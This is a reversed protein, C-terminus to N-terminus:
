PSERSPEGESATEQRLPELFPGFGDPGLAERVLKTAANVTITAGAIADIRYRPDDGTGLVPAGGCRRLGAQRALRGALGPGPDQRWYGADRGTRSLQDRRSTRLDPELALYGGSRRGCARARSGAPDAAAAARRGPRSFGTPRCADDTMSTRTVQSRARRAPPGTCGTGARQAAHGAAARVRGACQSLPGRRGLVAPGAEPAPSDGHRGALLGAGHRLHRRAGQGHGQRRSMPPASAPAGGGACETGRRRCRVAARVPQRAPHCVDRRGPPSLVGTLVGSAFRGPNTMAAARRTPPSSCSASPLAAPYWRGTGPRARRRRNAGASSRVARHPVSLGTVAGAM